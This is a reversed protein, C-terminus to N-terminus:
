ASRKEFNSKKYESAHGFVCFDSKVIKDISNLKCVNGVKLSTIWKADYLHLRFANPFNRFNSWRNHRLLGFRCDKILNVLVFLWYHEQPPSFSMYAILNLSTYHRFTCAIPVPIWCGLFYVIIIPCTCNLWTWNPRWYDFKRLGILTAFFISKWFIPVVFEFPNFIRYRM